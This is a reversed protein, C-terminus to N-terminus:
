DLLSCYGGVMVLSYLSNAITECCECSQTPVSIPPTTILKVAPTYGFLLVTVPITAHDMLPFATTVAVIQCSVYLNYQKVYLSYM